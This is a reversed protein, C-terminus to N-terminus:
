RVCNRGSHKAVYLQEDAAQAISYCTVGAGPFMSACGISITVQEAGEARRHPIALEAVSERLREGMWFAGSLDTGPLIAAFEEGGYRALFDGPRTLASSLARAVRRLCHDGERHGYLDNFQKFYDVDIMLLGLQQGDRIARRWEADLTLDFCRRNAVETLSDQNAYRELLDNKHKLRIEKLIRAKVVDLRFPRVLCDDAGLRLALAENEASDADVIVVVPISAMIEETKIRQCLEMSRECLRTADLLVLDPRLEPLAAHELVSAASAVSTVECEHGLLSALLAAVADSNVVVVRPKHQTTIPKDVPDTSLITPGPLRFGRVGTLSAPAYRAKAFAQAEGRVHLPNREGLKIRMTM